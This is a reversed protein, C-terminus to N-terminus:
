HISNGGQAPAGGAGCEEFVLQVGVRVYEKLEALAFGADGEEEEDGVLAARSIESFDKAIEDVTESRCVGDHQKLGGLGLGTLFGHCWLALGRVQADLPQNEGPVLPEFTMEASCLKRWADLELGRLTAGIEDPEALEWDDLCDDLWRQTAAIGGVCMTGCIGGHLEALSTVVGAEVLRKEISDYDSESLAM